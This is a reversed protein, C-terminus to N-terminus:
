VEYCSELLSKTANRESEPLVRLVEILTIVSLASEEFTGNRLGDDLVSTDILKRM